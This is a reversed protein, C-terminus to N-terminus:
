QKNIGKVIWEPLAESDLRNPIQRWTFLSNLILTYIATFQYFLFLKEVDVRSICLERAALGGTTLNALAISGFIPDVIASKIPLPLQDLANGVPELLRSTLRFTVADAVKLSVDLPNVAPNLIREPQNVVFVMRARTEGSELVRWTFTMFGVDVYGPGYAVLTRNSPSKLIALGYGYVGLIGPEPNDINTVFDRSIISLQSERLPIEAYPFAPGLPIFSVDFGFMRADGVMWEYKTDIERMDVVAYRESEPFKGIRGSDRLTCYIQTEGFGEKEVGKGPCLGFPNLFAPPSPAEPEFAKPLYSSSVRAFYRLIFERIQDRMWGSAAPTALAPAKISDYFVDQLDGLVPLMRGNVSVQDLFAFSIDPRNLTPATPFRDSYSDNAHTKEWWAKLQLGDALSSDVESLIALDDDTLATSNGQDIQDHVIPQNAM